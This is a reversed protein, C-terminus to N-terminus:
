HRTRRLRTRAIVRVAKPCRYQEYREHLLSHRLDELSQLIQDNRLRFADLDDDSFVADIGTLRSYEELMAYLLCLSMQLPGFHYKEMESSADLLM